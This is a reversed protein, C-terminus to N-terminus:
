FVDHCFLQNRELTERLTYSFVLLLQPWILNLIEAVIRVSPFSATTHFFQFSFPYATDLTLNRTPQQVYLHQTWSCVTCHTQSVFVASIYYEKHSSYWCHLFCQPLSYLCFKLVDWETEVLFCVNKAWIPRCLFISYASFNLLGLVKIVGCLLPRGSFSVLGWSTLTNGSNKSVGPNM